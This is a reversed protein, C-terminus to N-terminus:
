EGSFLGSNNLLEYIKQTYNEKKTENKPNTTKDERVEEQQKEQQQKEEKPEEKHEREKQNEDLNRFKFNTIAENEEINFKGRKRDNFALDFFTDIEKRIQKDTSSSILNELKYPISIVMKNYEQLTEQINDVLNFKISSANENGFLKYFVEDYSSSNINELVEVLDDYEKAKKIDLINSSNNNKDARLIKIQQKLSDILNPINQLYDLEEKLYNNNSLDLNLNDKYSNINEKINKSYSNILDYDERDFLNYKSLDIGNKLRNLTDKKALNFLKNTELHLNFITDYLKDDNEDISIVNDTDNRYKKYRNNASNVSSDKKTETNNYNTTNNNIITKRTYKDEDDEDYDLSNLGLLENELKEHIQELLYTSRGLFWYCNYDTNNLISTTFDKNTERFQNLLDSFNDGIINQFKSTDTLTNNFDLIFSNLTSQITEILTSTSNNNTSDTESSETNLQSKFKIKQNNDNESM